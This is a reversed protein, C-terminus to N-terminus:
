TPSILKLNISCLLLGMNNQEDGTMFGRVIYPTGEKDDFMIGNLLKWGYAAAAFGFYHCSERTIDPDLEFM